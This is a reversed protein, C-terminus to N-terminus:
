RRQCKSRIQRWHKASQKERMQNSEVLDWMTWCGILVSRRWCAPLGPLVGFFVLPADTGPSTRIVSGVVRSNVFHRKQSALNRWSVLQIYHPVKFKFVNTQHKVSAVLYRWSRLQNEDHFWLSPPGDKWSGLWNSKNYIYTKRREVATVILVGVETNKNNCCHFFHWM